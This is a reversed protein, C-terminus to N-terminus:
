ARSSRWRPRREWTRTRTRGPSIGLWTATRTRRGLDYYPFIPLDFRIDVQAVTTRSVHVGCALGLSLFTPGSYSYRVVGIYYWSQDAYAIQADSLAFFDSGIIQSNALWQAAFSAGPQRPQAEQRPSQDSVGTGLGVGCSNSWIVASAVLIPWGFLRCARAAAGIPQWFSRRLGDQNM